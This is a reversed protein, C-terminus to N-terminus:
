GVRKRSTSLEIVAVLLILLLGLSIAVLAGTLTVSNGAFMQMTPSPMPLASEQYARAEASAVAAELRSRNIELIKLQATVGDREITLQRRRHERLEEPKTSGIGALAREINEPKLAEDLQEARARLADEKSQIDILQMRLDDAKEASPTADQARLDASLSLLSILLFILNLSRKM